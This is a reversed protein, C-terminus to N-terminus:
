NGVKIEVTASLGPASPTNTADVDITVPLSIIGATTTALLGIKSIHGTFTQGPLADATITATQGPKLQALTNEDVGIQVQMRSLDALTVMPANPAASEGLHPGLWVVTGDFPAVIRANGVNQKALDLAAQAQAVGAQATKVDNPSPNALRNLQAQAQDVLAQAQKLQADSPNTRANYVAQAKLFVDSAQQLALSQPLMAIYPNSAGGARDYAAQAQNLAAQAMDLDAKAILLDNRTPTKLQALGAQASAVQGQAAALDSPAPNKLQDLRAQATDLAAQAQAVQLDLMTTDLSVLMDGAHVADGEKVNITKVRGAMQFALAAQNASAFTGVARVSTAAVAAAPLAASRSPPLPAVTTPGSFAIVIAAVGGLVLLALVIRLTSSKM